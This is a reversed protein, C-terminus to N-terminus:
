GPSHHPLLSQVLEAWVLGWPQEWRLQGLPGSRLDTPALQRSVAAFVAAQLQDLIISPRCCSQCWYFRLKSLVSLFSDADSKKILDDLEPCHSSLAFFLAEKLPTKESYQFTCIM